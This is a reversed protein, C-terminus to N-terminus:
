SLFQSLVRAVDAALKLTAAFTGVARGLAAPYTAGDRRALIGAVAAAVVALVVVLATVLLVVENPPM